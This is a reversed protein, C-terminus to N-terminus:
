EEEKKFTNYLDENINKIVLVREGYEDEKAVITNKLDEIYDSTRLEIKDSVKYSRKFRAKVEDVVIDFATDFDKKEPLSNLRNKLDPISIKENEPIYEGVVYEIMDDFKFSTRKRFYGVLSNRLETYDHLSKKKVYTTLVNDIANFANRTNKENTKLEKLELFDECWFSAIKAQTDSVIIDVLQYEDGVLQYSISCSKQTAKEEPLGNKYLSDELNLFIAQDIKSILFDIKNEEKLCAVVLSGKKPRNIGSHKKASKKQVDLLKESLERTKTEFIFEFDHQDSNSILSSIIQAFESSERAFKFSRKNTATTSQVLLKSVFAKFDKTEINVQSITNNEDDIKHVTFLQTGKVELTRM